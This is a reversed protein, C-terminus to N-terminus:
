YLFFRSCRRLMLLHEAACGMTDKSRRDSPASQGNKGINIASQHRYASRRCLGIKAHFLCPKASLNGWSAIETRGQYWDSEVAFPYHRIGLLNKQERTNVEVKLKLTSQPDTEPAFKFVLHMSHGAQERNCKGLWALADRIQEVQRVDPWPAKASWAQLYAQPIL